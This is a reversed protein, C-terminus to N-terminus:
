TDRALHVLSDAVRETIRRVAEHSVVVANHEHCVFRLQGLGGVSARTELPELAHLDDIAPLGRCGDIEGLPFARLDVDAIDPHRRLYDDDPVRVRYRLLDQN